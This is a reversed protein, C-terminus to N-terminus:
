KKVVVLSSGCCNYIDIGYYTDDEYISFYDNGRGVLYVGDLVRNDNLKELDVKVKSFGGNRAECMDTMGDFSSKENTGTSVLVMYSDPFSADFSFEYWSLVNGLTGVKVKPTILWRDAEGVPEFFSTSSIISDGPAGEKEVLIWASSYESVSNNPTNGDNYMTWGSPFGADFNESLETVQAFSHSVVVLVVLALSKKLM